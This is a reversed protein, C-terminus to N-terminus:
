NKQKYARFYFEPDSSLEIKLKQPAGYCSYLKVNGGATCLAEM